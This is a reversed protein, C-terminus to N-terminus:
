KRIAAATNQLATTNRTTYLHKPQPPLTTNSTQQQSNGYPASFCAGQTSPNLRTKHILHPTTQQQM